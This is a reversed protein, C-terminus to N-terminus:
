DMLAVAVAFGGDHCKNDRLKMIAKMEKILYDIILFLYSVSRASGRGTM